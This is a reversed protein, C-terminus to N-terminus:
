SLNSQMISYESQQAFNASTTLFLAGLEDALQNGNRILAQSAQNHFFLHAAGGSDAVAVVLKPVAPLLLAFARFCGFVEIM